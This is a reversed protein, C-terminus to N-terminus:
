GGNKLVRARRQAATEMTKMEELKEAKHIRALFDEFRRSGLSPDGLEVTITEPLIDKVRMLLSMKMDIQSRVRNILDPGSDKIEEARILDHMASKAEHDEQPDMPSAIDLM